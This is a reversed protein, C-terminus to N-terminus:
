QIRKFICFYTKQNFELQMVESIQGVAVNFIANEFKEDFDGKRFSGLDGGKSATPHISKAKALEEFNGGAKLKKMIDDADIQFEVMILAARSQPGLADDKKETTSPEWIWGSIVVKAWKGQREVVVMEVGKSLQGIVTGKPSLRLNESEVKLYVPKQALAGTYFIVSCVVTAMFSGLWVSKKM